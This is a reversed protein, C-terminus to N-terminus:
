LEMLNYQEIIDAPIDKIAIRMYEYRHMPSGLYFDKLDACLGRAKPTSIISNAIIKVSPLEAAPTSVNGKYDIRDGGVTFRVRHTEDKQPRYDIVVRLYTARRDKPKEFRHIFHM